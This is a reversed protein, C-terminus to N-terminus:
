RIIIPRGTDAGGQISIGLGHRNKKTIRVIRKTLLANSAYFNKENYNLNLKSEISTEDISLILATENLIANIRHWECGDILVEVQSNRLINM